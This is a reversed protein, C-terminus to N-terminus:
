RQYTSQYSSDPNTATRTPYSDAPPYAGSGATPAPSYLSSGGGQAGGAFSAPQVAQGPVNLADSTGFQTSRSTSGPRYAGGAVAAPAMEQAAYGSGATPGAAGYVSGASAGGGPAIGSDGYAAGGSAYGDAGRGAGYGGNAAPAAPAQGYIGPSAAYPASATGGQNWAPNAQSPAAYGGQSYAGYPDAAPRTTGGLSGPQAGYPSTSGATGRYDPSYFGQSTGAGGYAPGAAAGAAAGPAAGYGSNGYNNASGLQSGYGSPAAASGGTLSRNQATSYAGPATGAGQAYSPVTNPSALSSPPAPLGTPSKSALSSDAPKKKGWSLWDSSPMKFGSSTSCGPFSVASMLGIVALVRTTRGFSTRM